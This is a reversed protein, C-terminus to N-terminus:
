TVPAAPATKAPVLAPDICHDGSWKQTNPETMSVPVAGLTTQWSARYGRQYGVVLDPADARQPGPYIEDADFVRRVMSAGDSPDTWAQLRAAIGAKLAALEHDQVIRGGISRALPPGNM